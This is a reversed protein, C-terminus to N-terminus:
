CAQQVQIRLLISVLKRSEESIKIKNTFNMGDPLRTKKGSKIVKFQIVMVTGDEGSNRKSNWPPVPM